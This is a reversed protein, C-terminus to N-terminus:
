RIPIFTINELLAEAANVLPGSDQIDAGLTHRESYTAHMVHGPSLPHRCIIGAGSLRLVNQRPREEFMVTYRVCDAGGTPRPALSRHLMQQRRGADPVVLREAFRNLDDSTAVEDRGVRHMAVAIIFTQPEAPRASATGADLLRYFEVGSDGERVYWGEQQPPTVVFGNAAISARTGLPRIPTEAMCGYLTLALVFAVVKVLWPRM